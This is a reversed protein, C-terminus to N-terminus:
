ILGKLIGAPLLIKLGTVFILHMLATVVIPILVLKWVKREGMVLLVAFLFLANVIIFGVSKLLLAYLMILVFLYVIKSGPSTLFGKVAQLLSKEERAPVGEAAAERRCAIFDTVANIVYLVAMVLFVPRILVANLPKYKSVEIFYAIAWALIVTPIIMKTLYKKM